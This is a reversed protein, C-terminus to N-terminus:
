SERGSPLSPSSRKTSRRDRRMLLADAENPYRKECRLFAKELEDFGFVEIEKAM